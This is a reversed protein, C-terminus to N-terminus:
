TTGSAPCPNARPGSAPRQLLAPLVRRGDRSRPRALLSAVGPALTDGPERQPRRLPQVEPQVPLRHQRLDREPRTSNVTWFTITYILKPSGLWGKFFVMVRHPASTTAATSPASTESTTPSPRSAPCRTSTACWRTAASAGARRRQEQGVLFGNGPDFEGWTEIREPPPTPKGGPQGARPGAAPPPQSARRGRGAQGAPVRRQLRRRGVRGRRRLGVDQGAPM